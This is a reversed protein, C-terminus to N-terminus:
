FIQEARCGINQKVLRFGPWFGVIEGEKLTPPYGYVEKQYFVLAFRKKEEPTQKQYESLPCVFLSGRM